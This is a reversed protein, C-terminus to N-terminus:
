DTGNHTTPKDQKGCRKANRYQDYVDKDYHLQGKSADALRPARGEPVLVGWGSVTPPKVGAAKAVNTPGGFFRLAADKFM